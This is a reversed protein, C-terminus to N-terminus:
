VEDDAGLKMEDDQLPEWQKAASIALKFDSDSMKARLERLHKKAADRDPGPPLHEVALLCFKAAEITGAPDIATRALTISLSWYGFPEGRPLM